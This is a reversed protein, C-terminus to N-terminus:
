KLTLFVLACHLDHDYQTDCLIITWYSSLVEMNDKVLM